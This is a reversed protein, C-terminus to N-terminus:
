LSLSQMLDRFSLAFHHSWKQGLPLHEWISKACDFHVHREDEFQFGCYICDIEDYLGRQMLNKGLSILNQGELLNRWLFSPRRGEQLVCTSSSSMYISQFYQLIINEVGAPDSIIAGIFDSFTSILNIKQQQSANRRFYTTNRDREVLWDARSRTKWYDEELSLLQDLEMELKADKLELLHDLISELNSGVSNASLNHNPICLQKRM